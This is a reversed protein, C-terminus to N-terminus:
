RLIQWASLVALMANSENCRIKYLPIIKAPFKNTSGLRPPFLLPRPACSPRASGRRVEEGEKHDLCILCCLLSHSSKGHETGLRQSVLWNYSLITIITNAYWISINWQVTCTFCYFTHYVIMFLELLCIHGTKVWVMNNGYQCVGLNVHERGGGRERERGTGREREEEREKEFVCWELM